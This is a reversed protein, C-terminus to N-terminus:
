DDKGGKVKEIEMEVLYSLRNAKGLEEKDFVELEHFKDLRKKAMELFFLTKRTHDEKHFKQCLKQMKATRYLNEAEKILTHM